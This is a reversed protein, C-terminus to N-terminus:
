LPSKNEESSEIEFPNPKCGCASILVRSVRHVYLGRTPLSCVSGRLARGVVGEQQITNRIARELRDSNIQQYNM